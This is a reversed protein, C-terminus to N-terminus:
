AVPLCNASRLTGANPIALNRGESSPDPQMSRWCDRYLFIFYRQFSPRRARDGADCARHHIQLAWRRSMRAVLTQRRRRMEDRRMPMADIKGFLYAASLPRDSSLATHGDKGVRFVQFHKGDAAVRSRIQRSREGDDV